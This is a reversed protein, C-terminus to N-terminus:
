IRALTTMVSNVAAFEEEYQDDFFEVIIDSAPEQSEAFGFKKIMMDKFEQSSMRHGLKLSKGLVLVRQPKTNRSPMWLDPWRSGAVDEYTIAEAHYILHDVTKGMKESWARYAPVADFEAARQLAQDESMHQNLQKLGYHSKPALRGELQGGLEDMITGYFDIMDWIKGSILDNVKESPSDVILSLLQAVRYLAVEWRSGMETDQDNRKVMRWLDRPWSSLSKSSESYWCTSTMDEEEKKVESEALIRALNDLLRQNARM